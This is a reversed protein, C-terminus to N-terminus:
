SVASSRSRASSPKELKRPGPENPPVPWSSRSSSRCLALFAFLVAVYEPRAITWRGYPPLFFYNFCLFGLVSAAIGPGLSGTAAAAVVVALYAFGKSLPTINDRIPLFAITVLATGAVAIVYGAIRLNPSTRALRALIPIGHGRLDTPERLTAREDMLDLIRRANTPPYGQDSPRVVGM